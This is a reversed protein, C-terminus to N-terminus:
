PFLLLLALTGGVGALLWILLVAEPQSWGRRVLRHSLHNTDGVYFPKGLRWRLAVVWALDLLPVGLILLPSLVAWARPNQSSYF